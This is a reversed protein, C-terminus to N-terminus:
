TLTLIRMKGESLVRILVMITDVVSNNRPRGKVQTILLLICSGSSRLDTPLFEQWRGCNSCLMGSQLLKTGNIYNRSFFPQEGNVM